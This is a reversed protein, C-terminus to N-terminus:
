WCSDDARPLNVMDSQENWSLSFYFVFCFWFLVGRFFFHAFQRIICIYWSTIGLKLLLVALTFEAIERWTVSSIKTNPLSKCTTMCWLSFSMPTLQAWWWRLVMFTGSNSQLKHEYKTLAETMKRIVCLTDKQTLCCHSPNGWEWRSGPTSM